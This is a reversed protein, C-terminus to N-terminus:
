RFVVHLLILQLNRTYCQPAKRILISVQTSRQKRVNRSLLWYRNKTCGKVLLLDCGEVSSHLLFYKPSQSPLRRRKPLYSYHRQLRQRRHSYIVVCVHSGMDPVCCFIPLAFRVEERVKEEVKRIREKETESCDNTPFRYKQSTTM